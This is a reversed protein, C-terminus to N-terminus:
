HRCLGMAGYAMSSARVQLEPPLAQPVDEERLLEGMCAGAVMGGPGTGGATRADHDAPGESEDRTARSDVSEGHDCGGGEARPRKRPAGELQEPRRAVASVASM